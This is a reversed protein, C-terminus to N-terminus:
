SARGYQREYDAMRRAASQQHLVRRRDSVADVVRQMLEISEAQSLFGHALNAQIMGECFDTDPYDSKAIQRLQQELMEISREHSRRM